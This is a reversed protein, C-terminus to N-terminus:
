SPQTRNFDLITPSTNMVGYIQVKEPKWGYGDMAGYRTWSSQVKYEKMMWITTERGINAGCLCLCGEMVRLDCIQDKVAFDPPLPIEFLGRETVDFSIIVAQRRGNCRRVFWHLAGNFFAGHGLDVPYYLATGLIRSWSNTRLSFCHVETCWGDIKLKVIVYDDTSSDYGFGCRDDCFNYAHDDMVYSIGKRLGTSPNWIIFDLAGSTIMLLIFGRCSGVIDIARNYYKDEPSPLPYNFVVKASNDDHLSAEIDTCEVQHDNASLYLRTTPTAALAFHSRAFEQNGHVDGFRIAINEMTFNPSSCSAAIIVQYSCSTDNLAKKM